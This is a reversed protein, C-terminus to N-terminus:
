VLMNLSLDNGELGALTTVTTRVSGRRGVGCACDRM